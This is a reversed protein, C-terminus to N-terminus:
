LLMGGGASAHLGTWQRGHYFDLDERYRRLRDADMRAVIQPLPLADM